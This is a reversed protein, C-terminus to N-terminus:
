LRSEKEKKQQQVSSISKGRAFSERAMESAVPNMAYEIGEEDDDDTDDGGGEEMEAVTIQAIKADYQQKEELVRHHSSDREFMSDVEQVGSLQKGANRLKLNNDDIEGSSFSRSYASSLKSTVSSISSRINSSKTEGRTAESDSNNNPTSNSESNTSSTGKKFTGTSSMRTTVRRRAGNVSSRVSSRTGSSSSTGSSVTAMAEKKKVMFIVGALIGIIGVAILLIVLWMGWWKYIPPYFVFALICGGMPIMVGFRTINVLRTIKRKVEWIAPSSTKSVGSFAMSMTDTIWSWQYNFTLLSVALYVNILYYTASYLGFRNGEGSVLGMIGTLVLASHDCYGKLMMKRYVEKIRKQVAEGRINVGTLSLNLILRGLLTVGWFGCPWVIFLLCSWVVYRVPSIVKEENPIRRYAVQITGLECIVLCLLIRTSPKYAFERRLKRIMTQSTEKMRKDKGKIMKRKLGSYSSRLAIMIQLIALGALVAAATWLGDQIVISSHCDRGGMNIFDSYGTWGEDCICTGNVCVGHHSCDSAAVDWPGYSCEDNIYEIAFVM